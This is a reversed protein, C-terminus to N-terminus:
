EAHRDIAAHADVHPLDLRPLVGHRRLGPDSDLGPQLLHFIARDVLAVGAELRWPGDAHTLVRDRGLTDEDVHAAARDHRRHRSEVLDLVEGIARHHSDIEQGAVQDYDAAAIHPQLEPLHEPPKSALDGDDLHPRPQD